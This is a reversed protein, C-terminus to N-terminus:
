LYKCHNVVGIFCILQHKTKQPETVMIAKVKFPQLEIRDWTVVFVVCSVIKHGWKCRVANTHITSKRLINLIGDLIDRHNRFTGNRIIVLEDM